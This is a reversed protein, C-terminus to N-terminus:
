PQPKEGENGTNGHGVAKELQRGRRVLEPLKAFVASSKLWLLNDIAPYGSIRSGAEVSNPIGTQATAIVNDGITLHGAVGVQGALIVNKGLLSSGALGVQAALLNDEGVISGHGVQVLNDMKAGRRILTQGITARDITSNAGIEVDDEVVVTGSQVIKYYSGDAKRAFGFGDAGIVVGNQAIVRNGLVVEERVVVHSHLVVGDGIQAGPYISVHPYLIVNDGIVTNEAITVYPGISPNAGIKVGPAIVATPHIGAPAAPKQYFLEISQAFTLYPNDSRLSAISVEPADHGLIVASAACQKLRSLYKKNAVFTLDGTGAQEIGIVRRIELSGDGILRAGLRAAIDALKM